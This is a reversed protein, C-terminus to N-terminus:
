EQPAGANIWASLKELEETTLAVAHDGDRHQIIIGSNEADNPVIAPTSTGGLMATDYSTLDLQSIPVTGGHCFTCRTAFFEGVGDEWSTMPSDFTTLVAQSEGGPATFADVTEIPEVTEIATQEFTVFVYTIALMAVAFVGYTALFFRRRGPLGSDAARTPEEQRAALELPHEEAMDEETLRGTFMSRNWKRIHVHYMHWVLIALVALLGEGSHLVKAAPVFEGPLFTTSAIPNWLVFGTLAMIVTGWIIGFYEFKEDFTYRGQLPREKRLGLNFQLSQFANKVDQLTPLLDLSYRRVFINYGLLGVHYIAELILVVAAARHILRVNEIGGMLNVLWISIEASAFKQVLGTVALVTFSLMVVWHEIRYSLPFRLFTRQTDM